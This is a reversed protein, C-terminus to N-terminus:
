GRSGLPRGPGARPPDPEPAAPVLEGSAAMEAVIEEVRALSGPDAGWGLFLHTLMADAFGRAGALRPDWRSLAGTLLVGTTGALITTARDFGDGPDLAGATAAADALAGALDLLTLGPALVPEAEDESMVETPAVFLLRCLEVERPYTDEAAIWFRSASVLRALAAVDPGCGVLHAELRAQSAELSRGLTQIAEAQVAAILAGKSSFYVYISSDAYGLEEAVRKMTLAGVGDALAIEFACDLFEQRRWRRHRDRYSERRSPTARARERSASM